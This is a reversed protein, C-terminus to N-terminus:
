PALRLWGWSNPNRWQRSPVHSLMIEQVATGPTDNDNLSLAVRLQAGAAPTFALDRWPIAAELTYGQNNPLAAVAAQHGPADVISGQANGRFRFIGPPITEWDGPSLIFQWSNATVSSGVRGDPSTDLQLELSDGLYAFKPDSRTQVHIDDIVTVALYLHSQDWALRWHSSAMQGGQWSSSQAVVYPTEITEYGSWDELRGDILPPAARFPAVVAEGAAPSGPLTVTPSLAQTPPPAPAADTAAATPAAATAVAATPPPPIVPGATREGMTRLAWAVSIGALGMVLFALLVLGIMPWSVARLWALRPGVRGAMTLLEHGDLLQIPKGQAWEEAPRSIIGSTALVACDAGTHIMAGYLDRVVPQGVTGNYRKCQVITTQRGKRLVLDVGEDGSSVTLWVTYGLRQYLYGVFQEFEISDLQQIQELRRVRQFKDRQARSFRLRQKDKSV